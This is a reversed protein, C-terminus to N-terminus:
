VAQRVLRLLVDAELAPNVNTVLLMRVTIFLYEAGAPMIGGRVFVQVAKGIQALIGLTPYSIPAPNAYPTGFTVGNSASDDAEISAVSVIVEEDDLLSTCVIDFLRDDNPLKDLYRPATAM